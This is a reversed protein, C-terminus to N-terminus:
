SLSLNTQEQEVRQNHMSGIIISFIGDFRVVLNCKRVDLGEEVVSTAVLVNFKDQKFNALILNQKASRMCGDILCINADFAHGLVYESILGNFTEDKEVQYNILKSLM